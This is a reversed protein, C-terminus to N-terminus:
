ISLVASKRIYKVLTPKRLLISEGLIRPLETEPIGQTHHPSRQRTYHEGKAGSTGMRVVRGDFYTNAASKTEM